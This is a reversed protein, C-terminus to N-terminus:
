MEGWSIFLDCGAFCHEGQICLGVGAVAVLFKPREAKQMTPPKQQSGWPSTGPHPSVDAVVAQEPETAPAPDTRSCGSAGTRVRFSLKGGPESLVAAVQPLM